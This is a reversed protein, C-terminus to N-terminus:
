PTAAPTATLTPSSTAPPPHIKVVTQAHFERNTLEDKFTVKVTLEEHQPPKQWSCTLVYEHALFSGVWLKRTAATDFTWKGLEPPNAALDFAEIVFSGAAKIPDGDDDTPDAYVKVGEDGPKSRDLDAGGTLRGLKLGHTTFLKELRDQPLTPLTGVKQQLASITAADAERARTLTTIKDQLDQNQKRLEINAASPSGCGAVFLLATTPLAWGVILRGFQRAYQSM